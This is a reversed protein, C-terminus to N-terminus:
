KIMQIRGNFIKKGLQLRYFYMGSAAPGGNQARGNWRKQHAGAEMEADILTRVLQGNLNFIQLKVPAKEKLKFRFSTHPNFPNPFVKVGEFDEEALLSLDETEAEPKPVGLSIFHHWVEKRTENNACILLKTTSNVTHAAVSTNFFIDSANRFITDIPASVLAGYNGIAVKKM